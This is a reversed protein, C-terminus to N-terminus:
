RWTVQLSGDDLLPLEFVSVDQDMGQTARPGVSIRRYKWDVRREGLDRGGFLVCVTDRNELIAHVKANAFTAGFSTLTNDADFIGLAKLSILTNGALKKPDSKDKFFASAIAKKLKAQDGSTQRLIPQLRRLPTQEPTFQQCYPIRKM